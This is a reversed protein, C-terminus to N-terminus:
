DFPANIYRSRYWDFESLYEKRDQHDFDYLVHQDALYGGNVNLALKRPLSVGQRSPVLLIRTVWLYALKARKVAKKVRKSM